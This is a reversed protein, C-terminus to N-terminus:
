ILNEVTDLLAPCRLINHGIEQSHFYCAKSSEYWSPIPNFIRPPRRIIKNETILPVYLQELSVHLLTRNKPPRPPRQYLPFQPRQNYAQVHNLYLTNQGQSFSSPTQSDPRQSYSLQQHTQYQPPAPLAM